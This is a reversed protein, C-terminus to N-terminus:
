RKEYNKPNRYSHIIALIVVVNKEEDILYHIQFPFQKLLISRVQGYKKQFSFPSNEIYQKAEEIRSLFQLALKPNIVTYFDIAALIDSAVLPRNVIKYIM